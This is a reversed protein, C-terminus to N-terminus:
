PLCNLFKYYYKAILDKKDVGNIIRRANVPDSKTDTFHDKFGHGTFSGNYMGYFMIKAAIMPDLALDPNGLLDVGLKEGMREYNVKGTLQVYGRGRYKYALDASTNGLKGIYRNFYSRPGREYIPQMTHATEHYVTALAYALWRFDNIDKDLDYADLIFNIGDVQQQSLGGFEQRCTDFFKQRDIM